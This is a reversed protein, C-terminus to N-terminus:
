LSYLYVTYRWPQLYVVTTKSAQYYSTAENKFVNTAPVHIPARASTDQKSNRRWEPMHGNAKQHRKCRPSIIAFEFDNFHSAEIRTNPSPTANLKQKDHRMSFSHSMHSTHQRAAILQSSFCFHGVNHTEQQRCRQEFLVSDYNM